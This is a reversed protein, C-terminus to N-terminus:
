ERSRSGFFYYAILPLLVSALYLIPQWMGDIGSTSSGSADPKIKCAPSPKDAELKLMYPTASTVGTCDLNTFVKGDSKRVVSVNYMGPAVIMATNNSGIVETTKPETNLVIKYDSPNPTDINLLFLAQEMKVCSLQFKDFLEGVRGSFGNVVSGAPCDLNEIKVATAGAPSPIVTLDKDADVPTAIVLKSTTKDFAITACRPRLADVLNTTGITRYFGSYGVVVHNAPCDISKIPGSNAALGTKTVATSSTYTITVAATIPDVVPTGCRTAYASMFGLTAEAGPAIIESGEMGVAVMGTPCPVAPVEAGGTANGVFQTTGADVFKIAAFSSVSVITLAFIAVLFLIKNKM